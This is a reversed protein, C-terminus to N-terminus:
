STFKAHLQMLENGLLKFSYVIEEKCKTIIEYFDIKFVIRIAKKQKYSSKRCWKSNTKSSPLTYILLSVARSIKTSGAPLPVFLLCHQLTDAWGVSKESERLLSGGM